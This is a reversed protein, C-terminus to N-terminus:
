RHGPATYAPFAPASERAQARIIGEDDYRQKLSRNKPLLYEQTFAREYSLGPNNKMRTVVLADLEQAAAPTRASPSVYDQEPDMPAASGGGVGAKGVGDASGVQGMTHRMHEAKIANRLGANEPKAYLYSYASQYSMGDRARMHDVALSHLKAHNPGLLEAHDAAKRLPDYPAAKEVQKPIMSLRTGHIADHGKELHDLQALDRIAANKPDSYCETFAKAYSEGTQAQRALAHRDIMAHYPGRSIDNGYDVMTTERKAINPINKPRAARPAGPKYGDDGDDIRKMIVLKRAGPLHKHFEEPPDYHKIFGTM